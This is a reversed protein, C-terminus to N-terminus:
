HLLANLQSPVPVDTPRLFCDFIIQNLPYFLSPFPVVVSATIHQLTDACHTEGQSARGLDLYFENRKSHLEDQVTM